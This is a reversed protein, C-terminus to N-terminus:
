QQEVAAESDAATVAVADVSEDVDIAATSEGAMSPATPANDGRTTGVNCQRQTGGVARVRNAM